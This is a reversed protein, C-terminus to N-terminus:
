QHLVPGCGYFCRHRPSPLLHPPFSPPLSPPFSPPVSDKELLCKSRRKVFVCDVTAPASGARGGSRGGERSRERWSYALVAQAKNSMGTYSPLYTERKRGERGGERRGETGGEWMKDEPREGLDERGREKGGEGGAQELGKVGEEGEEEGELVLFL